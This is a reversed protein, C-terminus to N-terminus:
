GRKRGPQRRPGRPCGCRWRRRPSSSSSNNSNSNSSSLHRNQRTISSNTKGMRGLLSLYLLYNSIILHSTKGSVKTRRLYGAEQPRGRRRRQLSGHERQFEEQLWETGAAASQGPQVRALGEAPVQGRQFHFRQLVEQFHITEKTM